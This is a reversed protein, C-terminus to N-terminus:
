SYVINTLLEEKPYSANLAKEWLDHLNLDIKNKMEEFNNETMIKEKILSEKLRKLPDRKKWKSLDDKRKVGVDIDERPGVHGRWRYTIAEIFYPKRKKRCHNIAQKAAKYIETLDNGDIINFPINHAVAFRATSSYPQRLNIHMHSAFLNNEVVFLVPLEMVSALNFSEQVSGEECASDGLYSVSVDNSKDKKLALAAGVAIPVSAGVIPVSGSFGVSPDYLHMSGGMGKSCGDYKGLVEAFLKYISGGLGLYHTHSRHGGFVKDSPRLFRSLGVAIAEQGIGLHCPCKITGNAVNDGIIEEVRRITYIQQLDEILHKHNLGSIILDSTLKEPNLLEESLNMITCLIRQDKSM